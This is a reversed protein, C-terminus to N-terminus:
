ALGLESDSAVRDYKDTPPWPRLRWDPEFVFSSKQRGSPLAGNGVGLAYDYYLKVVEEQTVQQADVHNLCASVWQRVRRYEPGEPLEFGEYYDLFQFRVFIPTFVAEALGFRDFLFEGEPNHEVLFDDIDRYTQLLAELHHARASRDQNMVFRYGFNTLASEKAVLMSEIAHEFSDARRVTVGEIIEDLYALIVLSEKLIRGDSTELVPLETSGRTKNLLEPDRQRTIDVVRFRVADPRQKLQLLIEIRQSFPCVPIHYITPIM